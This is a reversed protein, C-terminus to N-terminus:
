DDHGGDDFRTTRSLRRVTARIHSALSQAERLSLIVSHDNIGVMVNKTEISHGVYIAGPVPMAQEGKSYIHFVTPEM